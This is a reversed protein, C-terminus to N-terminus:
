WEPLEGGEIGVLHTYSVAQPSNGSVIDALLSSRQTDEDTVFEPFVMEAAIGFHETLWYEDVRPGCSDHSHEFGAKVQETGPSWFNIFDVSQWPGGLGADLIHSPHDADPFQLTTNRKLLRLRSDRICM